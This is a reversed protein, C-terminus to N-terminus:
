KETFFEHGDHEFLFKLSSDFWNMNKKSSKERAAFYLAGESYDTGHLAQEVAQITEDSIEVTEISGDLVPSFQYTRGNNQYVVETITDPFGVSNVRNIVVNAVLVKGKTDCIGAEAEVIKLLSNYDEKSYTIVASAKVEQETSKDTDKEINKNINKEQNSKTDSEDTTESSPEIETYAKQVISAGVLQYVESAYKKTYVIQEIDKAHVAMCEKQWGLSAILISLAMIGAIWRRDNVEM